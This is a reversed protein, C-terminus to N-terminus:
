PVVYTALQSWGSDRGLVDLSRMLLQKQGSMPAKMVVPLQVELRDAFQTAAAGGTDVTCASSDLANSATGPAVPGLFFGVDSSYMWLQNAARDYHVYCFPQGGGTSDVAVLFQYWGKAIGTFGPADYYKTTFTQASGGATAQALVFQQAPSAQQTWTGRQVWGTDVGSDDMARLYVNRAGATKFETRLNLTLLQGNGAVTSQLTSLACSTGMLDSSATGPAIPGAFFGYTDSYLWFAGGHVDYHMLCYPQGGGDPATAILVQVWQLSQYGAAGQFVAQFTPSSGTGSAPTVSVTATGGSVPVFEATVSAPATMQVYQPNGNGTVSGTFRNFKYNAQPTASLQVFTNADYFGDASSPNASVTGTQVPSITTTLKYQAKFVALYTTPAAPVTITHTPAGGDSWNSAIFRQTASPAPAIASLTHQSGPTWNFTQTTTYTYGDVSFKVGNGAITPGVHYAGTTCTPQLTFLPQTTADDVFRPIPADDSSTRDSSVPALQVRVNVPNLASANAQYSVWVPFDASQLQSGSSQVEWFATANGSTIPLAVVPIGDISGTAPVAAFPWIDTTVMRARLQGNGNAVPNGQNYTVPVTAVYITVGTPIQSFSAQIRTGYQALGAMNLNGLTPFAPNYFDSESTYVTGILDQAAPTSSVDTGTFAAITRALLPPGLPTMRLTAIRRNTVNACNPLGVGTTGDVAASATSDLVQVQVPPAAYGVTLMPNQVAVTSMSVNATIAVPTAPAPIAIASVDLRVNRITFRRTGSNGPPDFPVNYFAIANLAPSQGPFVNPGTSGGLWGCSNPNTACPAQNAPSPKDIFLLSENYPGLIRGTYDTNFYIQFDVTPVPNGTGTPTGGTCDIEIEGILATIENARIPRTTATTAVCQLAGQAALPLVSGSLM